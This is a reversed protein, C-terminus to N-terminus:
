DIRQDFRGDEITQIKLIESKSNVGLDNRAYIGITYDTFSELQNILAKRSYSDRSQSITRNHPDTIEIVFKHISANCIYM